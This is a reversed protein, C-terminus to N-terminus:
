GNVMVHAPAFATMHALIRRADGRFDSGRLALDYAAIARKGGASRDARAAARLVAQDCWRPRDGKVARDIACRFLFYQEDRVRFVAVEALSAWPLVLTRFAGPRVTVGYHDAHMTPRRAVEAVFPILGIVALVGYTAPVAALPNSAGSELRAPEAGFLVWAVAALIGAIVVYWILWRIPRTRGGRRWEVREQVSM